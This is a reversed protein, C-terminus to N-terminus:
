ARRRPPIWLWYMNFLLHIPEVHVFASTVLGWYAGGYIAREPISGWRALVAVSSPGQTNVGIFVLVCVACAVATLIPIQRGTPGQKFIM